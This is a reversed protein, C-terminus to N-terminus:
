RALPLVDRMARAIAATLEDKTFPKALTADAGLYAAVDLYGHASGRGGGSMAILRPRSAMACLQRLLQTGEMEPMILDTIVLDFPTASAARFGEAGDSAVAVDHGERTLTLGIIRQLPQDDDVVLIRYFPGMVQPDGTM